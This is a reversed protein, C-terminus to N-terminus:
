KAPATLVPTTVATVPPQRYKASLAIPERTVTFTIQSHDSPRNIVLGVDTGQPGRILHIVDILKMGQTKTADVQIIQDSVHLGANEAPATPM